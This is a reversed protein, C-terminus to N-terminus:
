YKKRKKEEYYKRREEKNKRIAEDTEKANIRFANHITLSDDCSVNLDILDISPCKSELAM